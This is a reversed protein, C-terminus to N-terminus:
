LYPYEGSLTRVRVFAALFLLVSARTLEQTFTTTALIGSIINNYVCVGYLMYLSLIIQRTAPHSFFVLSFFGPVHPCIKELTFFRCVVCVCVCVTM